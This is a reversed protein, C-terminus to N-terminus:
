SKLRYFTFGRIVTDPYYNQSLLASFRSIGNALEFPGQPLYGHNLNDVFILFQPRITQLSDVFETRWEQQYTTFRNERTRMALPLIETFRTASELGAEARLYPRNYCIVEVPKRKPDAKKLYAVAESEAIRGTLSDDDIVDYMYELTPRNSSIADQFHHVLNRPYLRFALYLMICAALVIAPTQRRLLMPAFIAYSIIPCLLALLPLFHDAQFTHMTFISIISSSLLLVYLVVAFRPIQRPLWDSKRIHMVLLTLLGIVCFAAAIHGTQQLTIWFVWNPQAYKSYIDLNFLFAFRYFDRLGDTSLLYPLFLAMIALGSGLLFGWLRRDFSRQTLVYALIVSITWLAYTPRIIASSSILFGAAITRLDQLSVSRKELATFFLQLGAFLFFVAFADRQGAVRWVLSVYLLPYIIAAILAFSIHFWRVLLKYLLVCTTAEIVFDFIRFSLDSPGLLAISLAHLYVIGPFNVDWSGIYPLKGFAYLDWGMTQYVWNDWSLPFLLEVLLIAAAIILCIATAYRSRILNHL